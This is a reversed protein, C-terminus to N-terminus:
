VLIKQSNYFSSIKKYGKLLFLISMKRCVLSAFRFRVSKSATVLIYHHVSGPEDNYKSTWHIISNNKTNFLTCIKTYKDLLNGLYSQRRFNSWLILNHIVRIDCYRSDHLSIFIYIYILFFMYTYRIDSILTTIPCM